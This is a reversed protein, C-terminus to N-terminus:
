ASRRGAPVTIELTARGAELITVRASGEGEFAAEEPLGLADRYFASQRNTNEACVILRM